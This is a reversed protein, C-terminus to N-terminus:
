PILKESFIIILIVNVSSSNVVFQGKEKFIKNCKLVLLDFLYRMLRLREGVGQFEGNRRQFIIM